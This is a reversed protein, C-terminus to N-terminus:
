ANGGNAEEIRHKRTRQMVLYLLAVGCLFAGIAVTLLPRAALAEIANQM